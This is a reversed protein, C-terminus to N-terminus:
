HATIYNRIAYGLGYQTMVVYVTNSPYDRVVLSRLLGIDIVIIQVEMNMISLDGWDSDRTPVTMSITRTRTHIKSKYIM